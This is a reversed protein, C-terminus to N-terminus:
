VQQEEADGSEGTEGEPNEPNDNGEESGEEGSESGEKEPEPVVLIKVVLMRIIAGAIYFLIAAALVILMMELNSYENIITVVCAVFAGSLSVIPPIYKTRDIM